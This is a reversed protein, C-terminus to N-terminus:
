ITSSEKTHLKLQGLLSTFTHVLLVFVEGGRDLVKFTVDLLHESVFFGRTFYLLIGLLLFSLYFPQGGPWLAPDLSSQVHGLPQTLPHITCKLIHGASSRIQRMLQLASGSTSILLGVLEVDSEFWHTALKSLWKCLQKTNGKIFLVWLTNM